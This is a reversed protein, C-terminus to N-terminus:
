FWTKGENGHAGKEYIVERLTPKQILDMAQQQWAYLKLDDNPKIAFKRSQYLDFTEKHKKSLSEKKTNTNTLVKSIKEGLEIKEDLIKM